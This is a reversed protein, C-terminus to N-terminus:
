ILSVRCQSTDRLVNKQENMVYIFLLFLKIKVRIKALKQEVFEFDKEIM